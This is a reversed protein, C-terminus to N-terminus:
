SQQSYVRCEVFAFALLRKVFRLIYRLKVTSEVTATKYDTSEQLVKKIVGGDKTIDTVKKWSLLEVEAHQVAEGGLGDAFVFGLQGELKTIPSRAHAKVHLQQLM